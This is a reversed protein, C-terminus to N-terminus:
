AQRRRMFGLGALALGFLAISTPEPIVTATLTGSWTNNALSGGGLLIAQLAAISTNTYQASFVSNFKSRDDGINCVSDGGTDCIFGSVSITASVNGGLETLVYPASPFTGSALM